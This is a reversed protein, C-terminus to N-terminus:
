GPPMARAAAKVRAETRAPLNITARLGPYNDGLHLTGNHLQAVAAVLSLGLGSGATSRASEARFFRETARARDEESIGPGRDTISIEIIGEDIRASFTVTTGSPSFKLANDLLNAVAQQVLERDGLLPLERAIVTDLVLGREEAVARYLEDIDQLMPALDVAAFAARRSGAEIEAIRLLAEFVAVIGDLDLTAREIALELDERTSAHLSADELRTRARTIPTRLDHAIANSVQRVGDMLRSIRDLMDNIIEALEDFEDGDGTKLVRRTLDGRAIARTTTSIDRMMRRFLSRIFFAGIVGLAFMLGLAWLLGDRLVNRLEARVRVDRGVLLRDGDPLAFARLLAVSALGGRKVPLQYWTNSEDLSKPWQDLNGILRNGRADLLLYIRDGDVPDAMRLRLEAELASAGGVQDDHILAVSDNHVALQVQRQLLGVTSYWLSFALAFSSLGFITAYALAFRIGASRILPRTRRREAPAPKANSRGM